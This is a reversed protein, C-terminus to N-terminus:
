DVLDIDLNRLLSIAEPLSFKAKKVNNSLISINYNTAALFDANSLNTRLFQSGTFDTYTLDALTLNAERFDVDEALCEVIRIERLNMGLFTSHSINCRFFQIPCSLEIRPWSAETWNVGIIKSDEFFTNSFSTDKVKILGLNCKKFLCDVFRCRIFNVENFQCDTFNCDYFKIDCIETQSFSINNFNKEFYEMDPLDSSSM